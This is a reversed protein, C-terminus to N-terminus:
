AAAATSEAYSKMANALADSFQEFGDEFIFIRTKEYAGEKNKHSSTICLYPKGNSAEKLDFFFTRGEAKVTETFLTQKEM